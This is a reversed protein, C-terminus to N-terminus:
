VRITQRRCLCMRVNHDNNPTFIRVWNFRICQAHLHIKCEKDIRGIVKTDASIHGKLQDKNGCRVCVVNSPEFLVKQDVTDQKGELKTLVQMAKENGITSEKKQEDASRSYSQKVRDTLTKVKQLIVNM